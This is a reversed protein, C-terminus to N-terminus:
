ERVVLMFFEGVVSRDSRHVYLSSNKAAYQTATLSTGGENQPGATGSSVLGTMTTGGGSVASHGELTSAGVAHSIVAWSRLIRFGFPVDNLFVTVDDATGSAGGSVLPVRLTVPVGLGAAALALKGPTVDGTDDSGPTVLLSFTGASKLSAWQANRNLEEASCVDTVDLLEGPTFTHRVFQRPYTLMLDLSFTDTGNYRIQLTTRAM